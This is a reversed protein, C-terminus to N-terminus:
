QFEPRDKSWTLTLPQDQGQTWTGTITKITTDLQGEFSGNITASKLSIQDNAFEFESIGFPLPTQTPSWLKAIYRDSIEFVEFYVKLGDEKGGIRGHWFGLLPELNGSYARDFVKALTEPMEESYEMNLKYDKGQSWTGILKKNELTARYTGNIRPYTVSLQNDKFTAKSNQSPYTSQDISYNDASGTETVHMVLHLIRNGTDLSGSWFGVISSFDGQRVIVTREGTSNQLNIKAHKKEPDVVLQTSYGGTKGSHFFSANNFHWGLGTENSHKKMALAFAEKLYEPTSETWHAEAFDLMDSASSVIGGAAVLSALRTHSKVKGGNHGTAFRGKLHDPESEIDRQVWTSDMKLPDLIREKLLTEYDTDNIASLIVGLLGVGLNSYSYTGPKEFDENEFGNLYDFLREKSYHAFPDEANGGSNLDGPLRPLGSTHTSLQLLTVSNLPSEEGIVSEPLHKGISDNLEAKGQLVTDALLIGTFVKTISGIEFLTHEDVMEGDERMRGAASYSHESGNLEGISIGESPQQKDKHWSDAEEQLTPANTTGRQLVFALPILLVFALSIPVFKPRSINFKM